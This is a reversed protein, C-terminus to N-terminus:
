SHLFQTSCYSRKLISKLTEQFIRFLLDRSILSELKDIKDPILVISLLASCRVTRIGAM